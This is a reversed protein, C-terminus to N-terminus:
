DSGDNLQSLERIKSMAELEVIFRRGEEYSNVPCLTNLGVVYWGDFRRTLHYSNGDTNFEMDDSFKIKSM